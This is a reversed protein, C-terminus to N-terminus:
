AALKQLEEKIQFDVIMQRAYDSTMNLTAAKMRALCARCAETDAQFIPMDYNLKNALQRLPELGLDIELREQHMQYADVVGMIATPTEYWRGDVADKFIPKGCTTVDITGATELQDLIAELPNFVAAVKWLQTKLLRDGAPKPRYKKNRKKTASM